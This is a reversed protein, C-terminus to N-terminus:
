DAPRSGAPRWEGLLYAREQDLRVPELPWRAGDGRVPKRRLEGSAARTASAGGANEQVAGGANERVAGGVRGGGCSEWGIAALGARADSGFSMNAVYGADRWIWKGRAMWGYIYDNRYDAFIIQPILDVCQRLFATNRDAAMDSGDYVDEPRRAKINIKKFREIDLMLKVDLITMRGNWGFAITRPTQGMAVSNDLFEYHVRRGQALAGEGQALAGEGQALAWSFFLQPMGTFAEVNHHLLDEVAKYRGFKLGRGWAREVTAHPPTIMFFMFILNGFRTLLKSDEARRSGVVFSDFRFRDILLHSMRGRAAKATM